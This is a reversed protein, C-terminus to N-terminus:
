KGTWEAVILSLEAGEPRHASKFEFRPDALKFLNKWDELEREHANFLEAMCLDMGRARKEAIRSGFTGPPTLVYDNIIVKAGKKLAPILARLIKVSYKDSWNHFIFRYFYVDADKVPQDEFFDHTMFTVRDTFEAPMSARGGDAIEELDQVIIKLSPNKQAIGISVMGHSGGIDVLTGSGFEGWPYGAVTHRSDFGSSAQFCRMATQFKLGRAPFRSFLEYFAIDGGNALSFGTERPEESLPYKGLAEATHASAPLSENFCADLCDHLVPDEVLLRSAANHAVVGPRPEVFFGNVVGHRIVQRTVSELLGSSAAIDAFTAEKGIPFSHALRFRPIVQFASLRHLTSHMIHDRPGTVIRGLEETDDIIADRAAAIETEGDPIWNDIPGDVDFTLPPLNNARLYEDVIATNASIRNALQVIYSPPLSGM